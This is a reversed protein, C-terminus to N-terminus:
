HVLAEVVYWNTARLDEATIILGPEASEERTEIRPITKVDTPRMYRVGDPTDRAVVKGNALQQMALEFDTM